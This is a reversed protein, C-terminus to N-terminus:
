KRNFVKGERELVIIECNEIKLKLMKSIKLNQLLMIICRITIEHAVIVVDDELERSLNKFQLHNFFIMVRSYTDAISEANKFRYWFVGFKKQEKKKSESDALDQFIKHEQERLNPNEEIYTIKKSPIFKKMEGWTQMTRKYPSVFVSIPRNKLKEKLNAGAKKAQTIGLETLAINHDFTRFYATPDINGISQGHRILYIRQM